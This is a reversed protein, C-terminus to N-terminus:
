DNALILQGWSVGRPRLGDGGGVRLQDLRLRQKLVASPCELIAVKGAGLARVLLADLRHWGAPRPEVEADDLVLQTLTCTPCSYSTGASDLVVLLQCWGSWLSSDVRPLLANGELGRRVRVSVEPRRVHHGLRRLRSLGNRRQRRSHLDRGLVGLNRVVKGRHKLRTLRATRNSSTM